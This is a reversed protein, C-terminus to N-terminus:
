KKDEESDIKELYKNKLKELQELDKNIAEKRFDSAFEITMNLYKQADALYKLYDNPPNDFFLNAVEFNNRALIELLKKEDPYSKLYKELEAISKKYSFFGLGGLNSFIEYRARKENIGDAIYERYTEDDYAVRLYQKYYDMMKENDEKDYYLAALELLTRKISKHDPNNKLKKFSRKRKPMRELIFDYNKIAEDFQGDMYHLFAFKQRLELNMPIIQLISKCTKILRKLEYRTNFTMFKKGFNTVGHELEAETYTKGYNNSKDGVAVTTQFILGLFERTITDIFKDLQKYKPVVVTFFLVVCIILALCKLLFVFKDQDM